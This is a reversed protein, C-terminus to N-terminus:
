IETLRVELSYEGSQSIAGQIEGDQQGQSVM